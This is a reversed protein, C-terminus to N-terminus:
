GWKELQRDDQQPANKGNVGWFLLVSHRLRKKNLTNRKPFGIRELSPLMKKFHNPSMGSLRAAEKETVWLDMDLHPTM